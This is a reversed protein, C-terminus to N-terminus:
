DSSKKVFSAIVGYGFILGFIPYPKTSLIIKAISSPLGAFTEYHIVDYFILYLSPLCLLLLLHINLSWKGDKNMEKILLLSGLLIGGPVYVLGILFSYPYLKFTENQYHILTM